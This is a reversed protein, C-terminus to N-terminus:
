TGIGSFTRAAPSNLLPEADRYFAWLTAAVWALGLAVVVLLLLIPVDLRERDM